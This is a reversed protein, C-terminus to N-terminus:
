FLLVFIGRFDKRDVRSQAVARRYTPQHSRLMLLVFAIMMIMIIPTM